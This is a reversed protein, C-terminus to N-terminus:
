AADSEPRTWGSCVVAERLMARSLALHHERLEDLDAPFAAVRDSATFIDVALEDRAAQYDHLRGDVVATALLEADRLAGSIGHATSPDEFHGADGVLAWGPGTAQRFFGLHGPFTRFRGVIETREVAAALEPSARRLLRRFGGAVDARIEARFRTAPVAAFVCTLGDNTPIAGSAAGPGFHWHYGDRDVNRVYAFVSSAAATGQRYTEARVLAATRSRMGDAGVVLDARIETVVGAARVVVGNVVGRRRLVDVLEVRHRVEAGAARAADALAPDLVTRRPAYLGDAHEDARIDVPVVEDGYHFTSREIRPTAARQLTPLVGWRGLQIVGARMLAHTSLTDAGAAARDVVLVRLGARALLMATAAGAPRAGVVVVDYRRRTPSSTRM